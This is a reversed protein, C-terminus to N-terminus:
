EVEEELLRVFKAVSSKEDVWGVKKHFGHESKARLRNLLEQATM